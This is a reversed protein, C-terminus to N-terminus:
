EDGETDVTDIIKGIPFQSAIVSNIITWSVAHEMIRNIELALHEARAATTCHAIVIGSDSDANLLVLAHTSSNM